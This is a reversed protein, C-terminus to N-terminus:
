TEGFFTAEIETMALTVVDVCSDINSPHSMLAFDIGELAGKQAMHIKGGGGEEGPSGLLVVRAAIENEELAEM